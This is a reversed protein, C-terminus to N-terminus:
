KFLNKTTIINKAVYISDQILKRRGFECILLSDATDHTVHCNGVIGAYVKYRNKRETITEVKFKHVLRLYVQWTRPHVEVYPIDLDALINLLTQHVRLMKEQRMFKFSSSDKSWLSVKEIFCIPSGLEKIHTLYQKIKDYDIKSREKIKGDSNTYKITNKISVPNYRKNKYYTIGGSAGPDIGIILNFSM